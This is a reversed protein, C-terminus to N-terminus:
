EEDDEESDSMIGDTVPQEEEPAEDFGDEQEAAYKELPSITSANRYLDNMVRDANAALRITEYAVEKASGLIANAAEIAKQDDVDLISLYTGIDTKVHKMARALAAYIAALMGYGEERSGVPRTENERITRVTSGIALDIKERLEREAEERTDFEMQEYDAM